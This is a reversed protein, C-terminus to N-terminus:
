MRKELDEIRDAFSNSYLSDESKCGNTPNDIGLLPM